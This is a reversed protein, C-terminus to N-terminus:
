VETEDITEPELRKRERRIRLSTLSTWAWLAGVLFLPDDFAALCSLYVAALGYLWLKRHSGQDLDFSALQYATMTLAICALLQFCYDNLQPDFSWTRYLNLLKLAFYICVAVHLLFKPQWGNLRGVATVIFAVSALAMLVGTLYFAITGMFNVAGVPGAQFHAKVAQSATIAALTGAVAAPISTPFADQYSEPGRIPRVGLVLVLAAAATLVWLALLAPHARVLLGKEDIAVAEILLRLALGLVSFGPILLKLKNPTLRSKM